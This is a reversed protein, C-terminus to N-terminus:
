FKPGRSGHAENMSTDHQLGFQNANLLNNFELHSQVLYQIVKEFTKGTTSM